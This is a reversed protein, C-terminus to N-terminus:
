IIFENYTSLTQMTVFFSHFSYNKCLKQVQVVNHFKQVTIKTLFQGNEQWSHSSHYFSHDVATKISQLKKHSRVGKNRIRLFVKEGKVPFSDITGGNFRIEHDASFSALFSSGDM